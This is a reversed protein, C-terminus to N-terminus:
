KIVVMKKGESVQATTQLQYFYTGAPIDSTSILLHDFTKDVKYRKMEKGQLDYFVMEGQNVGTPFTYDIRTSSNTPNPYPNSALCSSNILIQNEEHIATSLTGPLGFVKAHKNGLASEYSLIMKTGVSTNYIPLQQQEFNLRVGPLATDSFLLTGNENYVGTYMPSATCYMFEIKSDTDFLQESLYLIDGIDGNVLPTTPLSSLSITKLWSHNMDYIDIRKGWRNIRVYREGSIEFKIVMLQGSSNNPGGSLLVSASDYAHELTIQAKANMGFAALAIFLIKKM